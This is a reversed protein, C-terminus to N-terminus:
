LAHQGRRVRGVAVGVVALGAVLLGYTAPEPIPAFIGIPGSAMSIRNTMASWTLGSLVVFSGSVGGPLLTDFVSHFEIYGIRTPVRDQFSILADVNPVVESEVVERSSGDPQIVHRVVVSTNGISYGFPTSSGFARLVGEFTDARISATGFVPVASDDVTFFGSGAAPELLFTYQTQATALSSHGTILLAIVSNVLLRLQSGNM